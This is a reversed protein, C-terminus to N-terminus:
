TTAIAWPTKVVRERCRQGTCSCQLTASTACTWALGQDVCSHGAISTRKRSGATSASPCCSTARAPASVLERELLRVQVLAAEGNAARLAELFRIWNLNDNIMDAEVIEQVDDRGIDAQIMAIVAQKSDEVLYEELRDHYRALVQYQQLGPMTTHIVDWYFARKARIMDMVDEPLDAM